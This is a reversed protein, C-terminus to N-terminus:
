QNNKLFAKYLVKREDLGMDDLVVGGTESPCFCLNLLSKQVYKSLETGVYGFLERGVWELLSIGAQHKVVLFCVELDEDTRYMPYAAISNESFVVVVDEPAEGANTVTIQEVLSPANYSFMISCGTNEINRAFSADFSDMNYTNHPM